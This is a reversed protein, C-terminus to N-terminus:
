GNKKRKKAGKPATAKAAPQSAKKAAAEEAAIQDASKPSTDIVSRVAGNQGVTCLADRLDVKLTVATNGNGASRSDLATIVSEPLYYKDAAASICANALAPDVDGRSFTPMISPLPNSKPKAPTAKAAPASAIVPVPKQSTTSCAALPALMALLLIRTGTHVTARM